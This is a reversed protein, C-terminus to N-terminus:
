ETASRDKEREAERERSRERPKERSAERGLHDDLYDVTSAVEAESWVQSSPTFFRVIKDVHSPTVVL